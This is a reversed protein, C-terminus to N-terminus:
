FKPHPRYDPRLNQGIYVRDIGEYIRLYLALFRAVKKAYGRAQDFPIEEVFEDLPQGGRADLWDGVRHPGGNYGAFALLEQGKFKHLLKSFYFAGHAVAVDENLLDMPGFDEDGLMLATKLGTRPIVQLLGLADATSISDPNFSSEVIMLAWLLYPNVGNKKAEALVLEPFARPYAQMWSTRAPGTPDRRYWGGTGLTYKRVMFHDGAEKLADLLIPKLERRREHIKQQRELLAAKGSASEPVPFRLSEDDVGWFNARGRRRNDIYPKWQQDDLEHPASGPRWRRSLERFEIAVDRAEWRAGKTLGITWLWYSRVINPFLDGVREAARELGGVYGEEDYAKVESPIPGYLSGERFAAFETASGLRGGWYIRASTSYQASGTASDDFDVKGLPVQPEDIPDRDLEAVADSDVNRVDQAEVSASFIGGVKSAPSFTAQIVDVAEPPLGRTELRCFAEAGESEAECMLSPSVGTPVEPEPEEHGKLALRQDTEAYERSDELAAEAEEFVELVFEGRTSIDEARTLISGSDSIRQEIDLMRSAAQLGYYRHSHAEYVEEFIDRAERLKGANELTRAAWYLYKARRQGYSREALATLNEYARDYEGSKYLLWTFKWRKKYGASYLDEYIALAEKYRGHDELYEARDYRRARQSNGRNMEDLAKLAEDHRKLKSLTRSKYKFITARSVGARHGKRYARELEELIQLAGEFDRSAYKNLARQLEIDHEFASHGDASAYDSKLERFLRDAVDWHKNIRLMRFRRFLQHKNYMRAPVVDREAELEELRKRSKIGEDRYPFEFWTQLYVDAADTFEGLRDLSSAWQYLAIHRRPYEDYRSVVRDLKDAAIKWEGALYYNHAQRVVARHELPTEMRSIKGFAEAAKTHDGLREHAEARLWLEFDPIPHRADLEDLQELAAQNRSDQILAHAVLLRTQARIKQLDKKKDASAETSALKELIAEGVAAAEASRGEILHQRAKSLADTEVTAISSIESAAVARSISANSVRIVGPVKLSADVKKIDDTSLPVAGMGFTLTRYREAALNPVVTVLAVFCACALAIANVHRDGFM